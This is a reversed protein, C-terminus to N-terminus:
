HASHHDSRRNDQRRREHRHEELAFFPGRTRRKLIEGVVTIGGFYYYLRYLDPNWGGAAGLVETSAAVAYVALAVSWAALYARPKSRYQMWLTIAFAASILAAALPYFIV